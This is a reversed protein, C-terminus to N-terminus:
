SRDKALNPSVEGPSMLFVIGIGDLERIHAGMRGMAAAAPHGAGDESGNSGNRLGLKLENLLNSRRRLLRDDHDSVGCGWQVDRGLEGIGLDAGDKVNPLGRDGHNPDPLKQEALCARRAASHLRDVRPAIGILHIKGCM